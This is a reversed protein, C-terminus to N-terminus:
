SGRAHRAGPTAVVSGDARAFGSCQLRDQDLRIQPLRGSRQHVAIAGPFAHFIGHADLQYRSHDITRRGHRRFFWSDPSRALATQLGAVEPEIWLGPTMGKTRIYDVLTKFGGPFRAPNPQWDGVPGWWNEGFKTYWGVDMCFVECGAAAAADVLPMESATTQDGDLMVVDNFIVPCRRSDNRSHLLIARRYRTLAAVAEEFGGCVCGMAVPVTEYTEGPRLNKWAQSHQADPGGIYAYLARTATQGIEAHWSGNHEIQWFWTVRTRTNEVM